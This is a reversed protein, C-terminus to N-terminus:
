GAAPPQRIRAAVGPQLVQDGRRSGVPPRAVRRCRRRAPTRHADLAAGPSALWTQDSIAVRSTAPRMATSSDCRTRNTTIPPTAASSWSRGSTGVMSRSTVGARSSSFRARSAAANSSSSVPSSLAVRGTRPERPHRHLVPGLVVRQVQDGGVAWQVDHQAPRPPPRSRPARGLRSRSGTPADDASTIEISVHIRSLLTRAHCPDPADRDHSRPRRRGANVGSTTRNTTPRGSSAARRAGSPFPIPSPRRARRHGRRGAAGGSRLPRLRGRAGLQAEHHRQRAPRLLQRGLLRCTRRAAHRLGLRRREGVDSRAARARAHTPGVLHHHGHRAPWRPQHGLVVGLRRRRAQPGECGGADIATAALDGIVRSPTTLPVESPSGQGLQGQRNFGWCWAEGTTDLACTHGSGASIQSVPPLAGAVPVPVLSDTTTGNGLQGFQNGGWCQVTQDTLLACHHSSGATLQTVGTLGPVAIPTSSDAGGVGAGEGPRRVTSDALLACTRRYGVSVQQVDGLGAVPLPVTSDNTTGNGLQGNRNNGWCRVAGSGLTACAHDVGISVGVADTIGTVPIPLLAQSGPALLANGLQGNSNDGWCTVTGDSMVSCATSGTGSDVVALDTRPPLLPLRHSSPSRTTRPPPLGPDGRLQAHLLWRRQHRLDRGLRQRRRIACCHFTIESIFSGGSGGFGDVSLTSVFGDSWTVTGAGSGIPEGTDLPGCLYGPLLISLDLDGRTIGSGTNDVCGSLERAPQTAITIDEGSNTAPPTHTIGGQVGACEILLVPAPATPPACAAALAMVGAVAAIWWFRRVNMM